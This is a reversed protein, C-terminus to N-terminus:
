ATEALWERVNIELQESTLGLRNVLAPEASGGYQKVANFISICRDLGYTAAIYSVVVYSEALALGPKSMEAANWNNALALDRIPIWKGDNIAERVTEIQLEHWSQINDNYASECLSRYTVYAAVGEDM